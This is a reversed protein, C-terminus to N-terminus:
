MQLEGVYGACVLVLIVLTLLMRGGLFSGHGLSALDQVRRADYPLSLACTFVLDEDLRYFQILRHVQVCRGNM